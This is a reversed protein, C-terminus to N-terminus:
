MPSDVFVKSAFYIGILILSVSEFREITRDFDTKGLCRLILGTSM